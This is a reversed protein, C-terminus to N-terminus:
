LYRMHHVRSTIDIWNRMYQYLISQQVSKGRLATTPINRQVKHHSPYGGLPTASQCTYPLVLHVIPLSQHGSLHEVESYFTLM